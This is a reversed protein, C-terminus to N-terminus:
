SRNDELITVRKDLIRIFNVIDKQTNLEEIKSEDIEQIDNPDFGFERVLQEKITEDIKIFEVEYYEKHHKALFNDVFCGRMALTVDYKLNLTEYKAAFSELFEKETM